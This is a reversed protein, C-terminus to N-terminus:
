PNAKRIACFTLFWFAVINGNRRGSASTELIAACGL